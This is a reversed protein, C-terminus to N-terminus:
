LRRGRRVHRAAHPGLQAAGARGGPIGARGIAPAPPGRRNGRAQCGRRAGAGRGRRRGSCMPVLCEHGRTRRGRWRWGRRGGRGGPCHPSRLAGAAGGAPDGAAAASRAGSVPRDLEVGPARPQGPRPQLGGPHEAAAAAGAPGRRRRGRRRRRQQRAPAGPPPEPPQRAAAPPPAPAPPAAPAREHRPRRPAARLSAAPRRSRLRGTRGGSPSAAASCPPTAALEEGPRAGPPLVSRGPGALPRFSREEEEPAPAGLPCQVERRGPPAPPPRPPRRAAPHLRGAALPLAEPAKM